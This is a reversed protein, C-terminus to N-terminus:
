ILVDGFLRATRPLTTKKKKETRPIICVIIILKARHIIGILDGKPTTEQEGFVLSFLGRNAPFYSVGKGGKFFFFFFLLLMLLLLVIADAHLVAIGFFTKGRSPSRCIICCSNTFSPFTFHLFFADACPLIFHALFNLYINARTLTLLFGSIKKWHGCCGM